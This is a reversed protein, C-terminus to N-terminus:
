QALIRFFESANTSIVAPFSQVGGNGIIASGINTWAPPNLVPTAQLQYSYGSQSTFSFTLSGSGSVTTITPSSPPPLSPSNTGLMGLQSLATWTLHWTDNTNFAGRYTTTDLSSGQAAVNTLAPSGPMPRPNLLGQNTYSISTLLPNQLTNNRAADTYLYAAHIDNTVKVVNFITNLLNGTGLNFENTGDTDVKFGVNFETFISNVVNPSAEDRSNWGIGGGFGTNATGRGILTANHVVWQSLPLEGVGTQFLDGDTEFARSDSSGTWTPKIGFWFQNTGRYGQDTDFDDDDCFASILHKTNVNGGFFEFGDDQSNFVEVYEIVTGSGVGAMSLGNLEKAPAFVNGPYRISVYRLQGSSDADNNGGFFNLENTYSGEFIDYKPSAAAGIGYNATNIQAQGCLVIGGWMGMTNFPVDNPDNVDDGEFTFIIPQAVTGTAVLQGGRAVWLGSVVNPILPSAIVNNTAAKVVTGPEITLVANSHVHVMTQLQYTNTASWTISSTIDNSVVVTAGQANAAGFLAAVAFSAILNRLKM